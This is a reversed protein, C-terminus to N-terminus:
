IDLVFLYRDRLKVADESYIKPKGVTYENIIKQVESTGYEYKLTNKYSQLALEKKAEDIFVDNLRMLYVHGNHKFVKKVLGKTLESQFVDTIFPETYLKYNDHDVTIDKFRSFREQDSIVEYFQKYDLDKLSMYVSKYDEINDTLEILTAKITKYNNSDEVVNSQYLQYLKNISEEDVESEFYQFINGYLTKKLCFTKYKELFAEKEYGLATYFFPKSTTKEYMLSAEKISDSYFTTQELKNKKIYDFIFEYKLNNDLLTDLDKPTQAVQQLEDLTLEYLTADLNSEKLKFDGQSLM